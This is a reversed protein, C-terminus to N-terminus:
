SGLARTMLQCHSNHFLLTNLFASIVKFHKPYVSCTWSCFPSMVPFTHQSNWYGTPVPCGGIWCHMFTHLSAQNNSCGPTLFTLVGPLPGGSLDDSTLATIFLVNLDCWRWGSGGNLLGEQLIASFDSYCSGLIILCRCNNEEQGKEGDGKVTHDETDQLGYTRLLRPQLTGGNSRYWCKCYNPVRWYYM